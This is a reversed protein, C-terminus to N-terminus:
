RPLWAMKFVGKSEGLIVVHYNIGGFMKRIARHSNGEHGKVFEVVKAIFDDPTSTEVASAAEEATFDPSDGEIAEQLPMLDKSDM